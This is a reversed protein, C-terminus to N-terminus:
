DSVEDNEGKKLDSVIRLVRERTQQNTVNEFVEWNGDSGRFIATEPANEMRAKALQQDLYYPFSRMMKEWARLYLYDM